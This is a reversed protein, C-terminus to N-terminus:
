EGNLKDFVIKKIEKPDLKGKFQKMLHGIFFGALQKKGSRFRKAEEAHKLILADMAEALEDGKSEMLLNLATALELPDADPANILAPFLAERALKLPLKGEEALMAMNSLTEPSLPFDEIETKTENLYAQIAGLMWNSALRATLGTEMLAEFYRASEIRELLPLAKKSDLGLEQTYRDLRQWPLEPLESRLRDLTKEAIFLPLLDPEPFFRYDNATEKDRMAATLGTETNFTRTQQRVQGGANILTEQRKEEYNIAQRTHRISNLNKVEVRTGYAEQGVPRISINADCRMNGKEMDGDSIGLYRVLKRIEGLFVSVEEISRFDPNTVVELLGAGARNLDILTHSPDQDHISKGADEELHIRDLTIRNLKGDELRLDMYGGGCIPHSDQSLQFGKPLDPYFYNKRDFYTNRAIECNMALGLKIAYEVCKENISPLAGPHAMSIPSVNQNASAGFAFDETAFVKSQTDLQVHVELGIVTEFKM